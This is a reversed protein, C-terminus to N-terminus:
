GAAPDRGDGARVDRAQAPEGRKGAIEELFRLVADAFASPADVMPVHGVGALVELRADPLAAHWSEALRAPVLTDREGWLLLAPVAVRGLDVRLDAAVAASAGRLLAAPGWRLSDAVLVPLFRPPVTWLSSALALAERPLSWGTPIGVPDALVIASPRPSGRSAVQAALLGGLSHGVLVPRELAAADLWRGLWDAADGAAFGARFRPLDLVHVEHAAALAPVVNRWWRWSGALGHVLVLPAGSGATRWRVARGDLTLERVDVRRNDGEREPFM